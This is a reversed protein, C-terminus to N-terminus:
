SSTYEIDEQAIERIKKLRELMPSLKDVPLMTAPDCLAKEPEEHVEIFIGDAGTAVAARAVPEAMRRDGGSSN